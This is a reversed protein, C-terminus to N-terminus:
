PCYRCAQFARATKLPKWSAARRWGERSAEDEVPDEAGTFPCPHMRGEADLFLCDKLPCGPPEERLVPIGDPGERYPSDPHELALNEARGVHHGSPDYRGFVRQTHKWGMTGAIKRFSEEDGASDRWVTLVVEVMAPSRKMLSTIAHMAEGFGEEGRVARWSEQTAAPLSVLWRDVPLEPTKPSAGLGITSVSLMSCYELAVEALEALLPSALPDSHKGSFHLTVPPAPSSLLWEKLRDPSLDAPDLPRECEPCSGTCAGTPEIILGRPVGHLICKLYGAFLSAPWTWGRRRWTNYAAKLARNM